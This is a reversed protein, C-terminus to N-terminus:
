ADWFIPGHSLTEDLLSSKSTDFTWFIPLYICTYTYGELIIIILKERDLMYAKHEYFFRRLSVNRKHVCFM